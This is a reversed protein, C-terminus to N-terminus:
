IVRISYSAMSSEAISFGYTENEATKLTAKSAMAHKREIFIRVSRNEHTRYPADESKDQSWFHQSILEDRGPFIDGMECVINESVSEHIFM